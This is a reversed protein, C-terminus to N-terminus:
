EGGVSFGKEEGAQRPLSAGRLAILAAGGFIDPTVIGAGFGHRQSGIVGASRVIRHEPVAADIEECVAVARHVDEGHVRLAVVHLLESMMAAKVHLGSGEGIFAHDVLASGVEPQEVKFRIM